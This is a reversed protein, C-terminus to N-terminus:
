VPVILRAHHTNLLEVSLWAAEGSIEASRKGQARAWRDSSFARVRGQPAFLDSHEHNARGAVGVGELVGKEARARDRRRARFRRIRRLGFKPSSGGILLKIKKSEAGRPTKEVWFVRQM